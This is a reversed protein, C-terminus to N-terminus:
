QKKRKKLDFLAKWLHGLRVKAIATIYKEYMSFLMQLTMDVTDSHPLAPTFYTTNISSYMSTSIHCHTLENYLWDSAVCTIWDTVNLASTVLGHQAKEHCLIVSTEHGDNRRGTTLALAKM